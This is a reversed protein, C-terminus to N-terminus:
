DWLNLFARTSGSQVSNSFVLKQQWMTAPSFEIPDFLIQRVADSLGPLITRAWRFCVSFWKRGTVIAFPLALVQVFDSAFDPSIKVGTNAYAQWRRTIAFCLRLSKKFTLSTSIKCAALFHRNSSHSAMSVRYHLLKCWVVNELLLCANKNQFSRSGKEKCQENYKPYRTNLSTRKKNKKQKLVTISFTRVWM